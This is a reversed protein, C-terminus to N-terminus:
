TIGLGERRDRRPRVPPSGGILPVDPAANVHMAPQAHATALPIDFYPDHKRCFADLGTAAVEDFAAGCFEFALRFSKHSFSALIHAYDARDLGYANAIVADVAARLRWRRDEAAVAPWSCPKSVDGLQERWLPLFGRHNCSLRLSAHALFREAIATLPAVPLEALIYLSVHAAAKQRLMWDFAFSNM